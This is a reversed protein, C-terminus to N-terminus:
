EKIIKKRNNDWHWKYYEGFQPIPIKGKDNELKDFRSKDIKKNINIINFYRQEISNFEVMELYDEIIEEEIMIKGGGAWHRDQGNKKIGSIWYEEGTEIDFYNGSIGPNKLKKLAM